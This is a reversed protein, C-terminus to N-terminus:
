KTVHQRARELWDYLTTRNIGLRQAAASHSGLRFREREYIAMVGRCIYERMTEGERLEPFCEGNSPALVSQRELEMERRVHDTTVIRGGAKAALRHITSILQRVNGKWAYCCLLKLAEEEFEIDPFYYRILIPIDNPRERLAPTPIPYGCLRDYLDRRFSGEDVERLLDHNTAAILRIDIKIAQTGGVREFEREQLVRLLMAQSPAPLDGIEDLFLTGGNAREFRGLKRALAGTFAGKEHGFLESEILNPNIAACNVAVFPKEARSSAKHIGRAVLEKGTGPEGTILVSLDLTAAIAINKRVERMLESEGILEDVVVVSRGESGRGGQHTPTGGGALIEIRHAALHAAYELQSVVSSDMPEFYKVVLRTQGGEVDVALENIRGSMADAIPLEFGSEMRGRKFRISCLCIGKEAAIKAFGHLVDDISASQVLRLLLSAGALREKRNSLYRPV